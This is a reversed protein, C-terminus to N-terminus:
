NESSAQLKTITISNLIPLVYDTQFNQFSDGYHEWLDFSLSLSDSYELHYLYRTADPFVYVKYGAYSIGSETQGLFPSDINDISGHDGSAIEDAIMEHTTNDRFIRNGIRKLGQEDYLIGGEDHNWSEPIIFSVEFATPIDESFANDAKSTYTIWNVASEDGSESNIPSSTDSTSESPTFNDTTELDSGNHSSCGVAYFALALMILVAIKCRFRIQPM